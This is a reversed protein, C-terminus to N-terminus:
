AAGGPSWLWQQSPLARDSARVESLLCSCTDALVGGHMGCGFTLDGDTSRPPDALWGDFESSIELM